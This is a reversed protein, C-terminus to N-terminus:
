QTNRFNSWPGRQLPLIFWIAYNELTVTYKQIRYSQRCYISLYLVTTHLFVANVNMLILLARQTGHETNYCYVLEMLMVIDAYKTPNNKYYSNRTMPLNFKGGEWLLNRQRETATLPHVSWTSCRGLLSHPLSHSPASSNFKM